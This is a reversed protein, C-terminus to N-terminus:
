FSHECIDTVIKEVTERNSGYATATLIGCTFIFSVTKGHYSGSVCATAFPNERFFSELKEIGIQIPHTSDEIALVSISTIQCDAMGAFGKIFEVGSTYAEKGDALCFPYYEFSHPVNVDNM